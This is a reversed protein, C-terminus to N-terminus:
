AARKATVFAAGALAALALGAVALPLLPTTEGGTTPLSDPTAEATAAEEAAAETAEAMAEETAEATAEETAEATAEETAEATAEETVEATAEATAEPTAEPTATAEVTATVVEAAEVTATVAETAEPAPTAIAALTTAPDDVRTIRGELEMTVPSVKAIYNAVVESLTPGFDYPDIANEAFVTYDDGGGRNFNNSALKYTADPDIPSFTGDDNEVEASIIREGAPQSGDWTFRLGSVQPFRGTGENDPNEARSVGNELAALVDSGKLGFTAVTNNFPLVELVGGLTIDGANLSSRIGGGNTIVIQVGENAVADHIADAVVNGMTCEGFRCSSREGDLDTTTSGIVQTRMEEVPGALEQVQALIDPDQEIAADLLIPAGEWATAVGDADFTVDLQGLYKGYAEAQVILVPEGAPSDVVTPYPGSADEDTNSLLTHSHGGVIVDVGEIAAALTQDEAYGIHSLVIIKNVGQDNLETILPEISAVYDNFAIDPGPSSINPTENTTLGIVGVQEGNVDLVTYPAIQGALDAQNATDMNASLVPFDVAGIFAALDGPGNDFEHNGVAMAQYGLENMFQASEAGKYETFFLTGQFQDGADILITNPGNEANRLRNIETARRAVGGICEGAAEAEADCTTTSGDYQEIHAHTDNTHLITLTFGGDDQALAPAAGPLLAVLLAIVLLWPTL